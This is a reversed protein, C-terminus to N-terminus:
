FENVHRSNASTSETPRDAKFNRKWVMDAVRKFQATQLVCPSCIHRQYLCQETTARAFFLFLSCKSPYFFRRGPAPPTNM